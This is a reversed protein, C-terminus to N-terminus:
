PPRRSCRGSHSRPPAGTHGPVPPRPARPGRPSPPGAPNPRRGGCVSTASRPTSFGTVAVLMAIAAPPASPEEVGDAPQGEALVGGLLDGVVDAAGDHEEARRAAHVGPAPTRGAAPRWRSGADEGPCRGTGTGHRRRRRTGIEEVATAWRASISSAPGLACGPFVECADSRQVRDRRGAHGVEPPAVDVDAHQGVAQTGQRDQGVRHGGGHGAGAARTLEAAEAEECGEPGNRTRPRRRTAVM